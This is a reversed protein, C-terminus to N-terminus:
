AEPIAKGRKLQFDDVQNVNEEKRYSLIFQAMRLALDDFQLQMEESLEKGSASNRCRVCLSVWELHFEFVEKKDALQLRSSDALMRCSTALAALIPASTM